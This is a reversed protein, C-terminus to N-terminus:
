GDGMRRKGTGNCAFCTWDEVGSSDRMEEPVEGTGHCKPCIRAEFIMSRIATVDKGIYVLVLLILGLLIATTSM